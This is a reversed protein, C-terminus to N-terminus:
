FLSSNKILAISDTKKQVWFIKLDMLFRKSTLGALPVFDSQSVSRSRLKESQNKKMRM